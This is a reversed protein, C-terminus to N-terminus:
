LHCNECKFEKIKYLVFTVGQDTVNKHCKNCAVNIHKGDLVFQTSNHDFKSAPKFSNTTHCKMCDSSGNNEFQHFHIDNHCNACQTSTGVFKQDSHGTREKNFHCARCTLKGHAGNLEFKTKKHDFNIENWKDVRHCSECNTEPYYKESIYNKHINEHCDCCNKGIERFEWKDQKKHCAFCPTALHAGKLQFVASNHQEITYSFESFGNVTHCASCDPSIGNMTFQQRHYDAHCDTCRKYGIPATLKGKHCLKCTVERHRGELKFDALNHDFKNAGPAVKFSENNHCDTCRQGFKNNHVDKHCNTCNASQIGKFEQFKQGNRTTTKHCSACAVQQHKGLLQFDTKQHNFKSAPKFKDGNHCETCNASLTNQHYDTHCTLCALNLGLYTFQKAKIKDDKISEKKHCDECKKSSHAGTLQYGTLAHNFTDKEFRVIQFNLGHHDSHCRVCQKGNVEISSHYGKKQVIQVNLETHCALCKSNAVKKGIIHCQTCNSMGELHAHVKSLEGPSIQATGKIWALLFFVIYTLRYRVLINRM